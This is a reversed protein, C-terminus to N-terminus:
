EGKVWFPDLRAVYETLVIAEFYEVWMDPWDASTPELGIIKDGEAMATLLPSNDGWLAEDIADKILPLLQDSHELVHKRFAQMNQDNVTFDWKKQAM